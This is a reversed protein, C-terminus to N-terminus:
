YGCVVSLITRRIRLWCILGPPPQLQNKYLCRCCSSALLLLLLPGLALTRSVASCVVLVDICRAIVDSVSSVGVGSTGLMAKDDRVGVLGRLLIAVSM